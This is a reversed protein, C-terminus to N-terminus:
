IEEYNFLGLRFNDISKFETVPEAYRVADELRWAFKREYYGFPIEEPHAEKLDETIPECAVLTAEGIICGTPFDKEYGLTDYINQAKEDKSITKPIYIGVRLPMEHKRNAWNRTEFKKHGDVIASGFPEQIALAKM